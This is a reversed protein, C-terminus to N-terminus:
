LVHKHQTKDDEDAQEQVQVVEPSVHHKSLKGTHLDSVVRGIAECPNLLSEGIGDKRDEIEDPNYGDPEVEAMTEPRSHLCQTDTTLNPQLAPLADANDIDSNEHADEEEKDEREPETECGTHM